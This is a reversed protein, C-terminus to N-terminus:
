KIKSFDKSFVVGPHQVELNFKREEISRKLFQTDSENELQDIYWNDFTWDIEQKQNLYFVDGGLYYLELAELAEQKNLAKSIVSDDSYGKIERLDYGKNQLFEKINEIKNM